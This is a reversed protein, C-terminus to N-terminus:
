WFSFPEREGQYELVEAEFRKAQLAARLQGALGQVMPYETSFHGADLLALGLAEAERAEHYKVDATVLLDAGKRQAEHILSAGSGGCLAVKKVQRAPDGVLRVGTAALREKVQLAYAGATVPEALKGIRGLGYAEGRNLVPYLDYAPEEYPHAGKLAAVAAAIREKVLLIELRSEPEAHSAGVEGVFPRAGPLPTFRGTGEGQYSCDRYNGIHPMFPSLAGLLKEECGSPAFLVMKVYEDGGTIRLPQAGQIGLLGALLDNVGGPAIDFNTHLSIISLDNKLALIALRGTEDATSIKKLPTFIFPHHTILLQCGIEVAAEVAPRGPDLAVMIRSVQSSPDGLQLGVNDWSEALHTPAIKGTIGSIDSVRPTIM